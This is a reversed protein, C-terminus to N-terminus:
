KAVITVVMEMQDDIVNDKLEKFISKSGYNVGWKTRDIRITDSVAKYGGDVQAFQAEFTVNHTAEKMTLNGSITYKDSEGIRSASTIEFTATPYKEVDFFDASKLHNELMGKMEGTLDLCEITNMDIVFRGSSITQLEKNGSVEGSQLQLTGHHEGGVKSGLWEIQSQSLDVVLTEDGVSSVALEQAETTENDSKKDNKCSAAGLLTIAALATMLIKKNM